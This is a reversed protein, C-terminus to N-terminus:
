MPPFIWAQMRGKDQDELGEISCLRLSSALPGHGAWFFELRGEETGTQLLKTRLHGICFDPHKPLTVEVDDGRSLKIKLRISDTALEFPSLDTYDLSEQTSQPRSDSNDAFGNAPDCLCYVPIIYRFGHDDYAETLRGTPTTIGASSLIARATEMDVNGVEIAERLASWVVEQGGYAPATDWFEVRRRELEERTVPVPSCWTIAIKSLFTQRHSAASARPSGEPASHAYLTADKPSAYRQGLSFKIPYSYEDLGM